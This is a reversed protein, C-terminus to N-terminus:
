TGSASVPAYFNILNGEPDRFWVSRIGWPQTTPPKVIPIALATLRKYEEDVDEVEFELVNGGYGAGAMANPTMQQMAQASFISLGLGNLSFNFFPDNGNPEMQLVDQYFKCLRHTDQTIICISSLKKMFYRGFMWLIDM